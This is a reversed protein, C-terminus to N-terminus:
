IWLTFTIKDNLPYTMADLPTTTIDKLIILTNCTLTSELDLKNLSISLSFFFFQLSFRLLYKM